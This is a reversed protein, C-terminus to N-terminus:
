QDPTSELVRHGLSTLGYGTGYSITLGLGKLKRVNAKFRPTEMDVTPALQSAAVHPNAHIRELTPRTWAGAGARRDMKDLRSILREFEATSVDDSVDAFPDRPSPVFHFDVRYVNTQDDVTVTRNLERLLADRSDFGSALAEFESIEGVPVPELADVAVAGGSNVRYSNGVRVRPAKWSRFTTTIVGDAIPQHFKHKFLM